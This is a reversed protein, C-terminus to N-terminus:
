RHESPSASHFGLLSLMAPPNGSNCSSHTPRLTASNGPMYTSFSASFLLDLHQSEARHQWLSHVVGHTHLHKGPLPGSLPLLATLCGEEGSLFQKPGCWPLGYYKSNQFETWQWLYICKTVSGTFVFNKHFSPLFYLNVTKRHPSLSPPACIKPEPALSCPMVMNM